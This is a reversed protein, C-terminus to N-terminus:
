RTSRARRATMTITEGTDTLQCSRLDYRHDAINCFASSGGGALGTGVPVGIAPMAKCAALLFVGGVLSILANKGLMYSLTAQEGGIRIVTQSWPRSAHEKIAAALEKQGENSAQQAAEIADLRPQNDIREGLAAMEKRIPNLAATIREPMGAIFEARAKSMATRDDREMRRMEADHEAFERAIRDIEMVATQIEAPGIADPDSAFAKRGGREAAIMEDAGRRLLENRTIGRSAAIRDLELVREVGYDVNIHPSVKKM